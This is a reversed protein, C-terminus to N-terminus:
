YYDHLRDVALPLGVAFHPDSILLVARVVGRTGRYNKNV